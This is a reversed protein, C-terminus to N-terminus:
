YKRILPAPEAMAVPVGFMWRMGLKVDHSHLDKYSYVTSLGCPAYCTLPGTEARGMDLYRYALELKVNPTVEYGVGAHLAWAFKTVDKDPGSGALGGGFPTGAIDTMGMTKHRAFGVGAGVFPTFGGWTGLDIYGNVLGVISSLKGDVQDVSRFPDGPYIYSEVTKIQAASRYEATVDARLWGNFQYGAGIGVIVQDGMVKSDLRYGDPPPTFGPPTVTNVGEVKDFDAIGVGVDGRLYWGGFPEAVPGYPAPPPPPLLDAALPAASAALVFAGALAFSKLSGM